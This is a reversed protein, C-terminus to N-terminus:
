QEASLKQRCGLEEGCAPIARNMAEIANNPDLGKEFKAELM